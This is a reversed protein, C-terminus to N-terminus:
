YYEKLVILYDTTQILDATLYEGKEFIQTNPPVISSQGRLENTVGAPILHVHFEKEHDTEQILQRAQTELSPDDMKPTLNLANSYIQKAADWNHLRKQYHGIEILVEYKQNIDSKAEADRLKAHLQELENKSAESM